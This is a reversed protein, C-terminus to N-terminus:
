VGGHPPRDTVLEPHERRFSQAIHCDWCVPWHSVLTRQLNEIPVEDWQITKGGAFETLAPPHDHWSIEHFPKQCYVCIEGVYWKNVITSVLCEHPAANIQALCEQGCGEKEPWRTCEKLRIHPAGITAQAAAKGAAVRVGVPRHNEPCTVIRKGRFKLYTGLARIAEYVIAPVLVVLLGLLVYRM